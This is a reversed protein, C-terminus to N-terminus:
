TKGHKNDKAIATRTTRAVNELNTNIVELYERLAVIRENAINLHVEYWDLLPDNAHFARAWKPTNRTFKRIKEDFAEWEDLVWKEPKESM